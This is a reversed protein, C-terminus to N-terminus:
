RQKFKQLFRGELEFFLDNLIFDEKEQKKSLDLAM